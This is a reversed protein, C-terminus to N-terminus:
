DGHDDKGARGPGQPWWPRSVRPGLFQVRLRDKGGYHELGARVQVRHHSLDSEELWFPDVGDWELAAKLSDVAVTNLENDKREAHIM